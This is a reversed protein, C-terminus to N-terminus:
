QEESEKKETYAALDEMKMLERLIELKEYCGVIETKLVAIQALSYIKSRKM